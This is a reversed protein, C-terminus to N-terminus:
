LLSLRTTPNFARWCQVFPSLLNDGLCATMVAHILQRETVQCAAFAGLFYVGAFPVM